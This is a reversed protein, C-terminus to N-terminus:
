QNNNNSHHENRKCYSEVRDFLRVQSIVVYNNTGYNMIISRTLINCVTIIM